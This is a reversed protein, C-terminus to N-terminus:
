GPLSRRDSELLVFTFDDAFTGSSPLRCAATLKGAFDDNQANRLLEAIKDRGAYKWVGDTMVLLAWPEVLPSSFFTCSTVGSGIQPNKRQQATLDILQTGANWLSAASDGCSAGYIHGAQICFAILTTFGADPNTQVAQDTSRFLEWWQSPGALLHPQTEQISVLMAECAQRAATAGGAQGGQGDTVAGVYGDPLRNLGLYDENEHGASGESFSTTRIM